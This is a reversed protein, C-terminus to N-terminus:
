EGKIAQMPPQRLLLLAGIPPALNIFTVVAMYSLGGAEIAIAHAGAHITFGILAGVAVPLGGVAVIETALMIRIGSDRMKMARYLAFDSRRMFWLFVHMTALLAGMGAALWFGARSAMQESPSRQMASGNILSRVVHKTGFAGILATRVAEFSSPEASVYCSQLDGRAASVFMVADNVGDVRNRGPPVIDVISTSWSDSNTDDSPRYILEVGASLGLDIAVEEPVIISSSGPNPLRPWSAAAFGASVVLADVNRTTLQALSVSTRRFIGGAGIVGSTANVADCLEVPVGGQKATVVLVSSGAEVQRSWDDAIAETEFAPLWAATLGVFLAILAMGTSIIPSARVNAIAESAAFAAESKM